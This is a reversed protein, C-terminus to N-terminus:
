PSRTRFCLTRCHQLTAMAGRRQTTPASRVTATTAGATTQIQNSKIQNSKIQNSKIQNNKKHNLTKKEENGFIILNERVV